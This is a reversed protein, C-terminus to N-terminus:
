VYAENLFKVFETNNFASPGRIERIYSVYDFPEEKHHIKMMLGALVASRNRGGQCHILVRKGNMLLGILMLALPYLFSTQEKVQGDRMPWHIYMRKGVPTLTLSDPRNWLNVVVDFHVGTAELEAEDNFKGSIYLGSAVEFVKM